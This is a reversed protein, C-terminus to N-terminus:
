SLMDTSSFQKQCVVYNCSSQKQAILSFPWRAMQIECPYFLDPHVWPAKFQRPCVFVCRFAHINLCGSTDVPMKHSRLNARCVGVYKQAGESLTCFVAAGQSMGPCQSRQWAQLTQKGDISVASRCPLVLKAKWTLLSQNKLLNTHGWTTRSCLGSFSNSMCTPM